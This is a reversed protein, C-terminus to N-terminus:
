QSLGKLTNNITSLVNVITSGLDSLAFIAILAILVVILSYEVMDQGSEDTFFKM